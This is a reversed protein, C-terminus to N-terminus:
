EANGIQLPVFEILLRFSVVRCIWEDEGDRGRRGRDDIGGTRSFAVKVKAEDAFMRLAPYHDSLFKKALAVTSFRAFGFGRSQGSVFIGFCFDRYTLTVNMISSLPRQLYFIIPLLAHKGTNRDKIVSITEVGEVGLAEVLERM